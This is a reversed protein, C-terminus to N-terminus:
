HRRESIAPLRPQVESSKQDDVNATRWSDSRRGQIVLSEPSELVKLVSVLDQNGKKTPFFSHMLIKLKWRIQVIRPMRRSLLRERTEKEEKDADEIYSIIASRLRTKVEDFSRGCAAIDYDVSIAEWENDRCEYYCLFQRETM